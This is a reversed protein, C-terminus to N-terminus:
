RDEFILFDHKTALAQLQTVLDQDFDSIVDIHTKLVCIYPGVKDAIELLEAKTSVDAALSLNSQKREMTEFLQKAVPHTHKEARIAYSQQSFSVM